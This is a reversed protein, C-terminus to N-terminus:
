TLRSHMNDIQGTKRSSRSFLLYLFFSSMPIEPRLLYSEFVSITVLVIIFIMVDQNIHFIRFSVAAVIIIYGVVGVGSLLMIFLNDVGTNNIPLWGFIFDYISRNFLFGKYTYPRFSLVADMVPNASTTLYYTFASAFILSSVGILYLLGRFFILKRSFITFIKLLLFLLLGLLATRSNTNHFVYFCVVISILLIILSFKTRYQLHAFAVLIMLSLYMASVQNPNFFGLQSRTREAIQYVQAQMNGTGLLFLHLLVVFACPIIFVVAVERGSLKQLSTVVIMLFIMNILIQSQNAFLLLLLFLIILFYKARIANILIINTFLLALSLLRFFLKLGESELLGTGTTLFYGVYLTLFALSNLYISGRRMTLVPNLRRNPSDNPQEIHNGRKTTIELTFRM